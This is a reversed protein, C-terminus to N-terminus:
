KIFYQFIYYVMNLLMILSRARSQNMQDHVESLISTIEKWVLAM